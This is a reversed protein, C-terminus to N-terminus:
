VTEEYLPLKITFTTGEGVRSRVNIDGSHKTVLSHTVSLGLGTGEGVPKTTYFPEFINKLEKEPIGCGTDSIEILINKNGNDPKVCVTLTGSDKMAHVANVIINVFVEELKSANGNVFFVMNPINTKLNINNVRLQNAVLKISEEVVNVIDLKEMVTTKRTGVFELLDGVIHKARESQSLIDQIYDKMEELTMENLDEKMTEATLSINNLPNNLEHTIGSVLFGLSARKEAEVQKEHLLELSRELSQHTLQLHDLMTNFSQALSYTEDHEKLPARLNLDGESIKKTIDALRKIPAVIYTATKYVLLPGLTCLLLLALLLLNHTRGLFSNIKQRELSAIKYTITELGEGNVQLDNILLDSQNYAESLDRAAEIYPMCEFCFPIINKIQMLANDLANYSGKDRFLMYNKELRRLNLIFNMSLEGPSRKAAVFNELKRGDERVKEVVDTEHQYQVYLDNMSGSYTQISQRLRSFNDEGIETVTQPSINSLSNKLISVSSQFYKYYEIDKHLLFNKENRRVELIHEKMDDALQVFSQRNKVDNIYGYTLFGGVLAILSPITIGIIMKHWIKLQM